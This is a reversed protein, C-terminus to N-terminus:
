PAPSQQWDDFPLGRNLVDTLYRSFKQNPTTEISQLLAKQRTIAEREAEPGRYPRRSVYQEIHTANHIILGAYWEKQNDRMERWAPAFANAETVYLTRTQFDVHPDSPVQIVRFVYDRVTDPLLNFASETQDVFWESGQIEISDPRIPTAPTPTPPIPTPTAPQPTPVPQSSPVFAAFLDTAPMAEPRNLGGPMSDNYQRYLDGGRAEQDLDQPLNWGTILSKLFSGVELAETRGSHGDYRMIGRQFRLYVIAPDAPDPAPRSIPLGWVELNIAPLLDPVTDGEPFADDLGVTSSFTAFFNTNLGNWLDPANARVFNIARSAFEPEATSPAAQILEPDPAPFTAGNFRTYPFLDRDAITLLRVSGDPSLQLAGRQFLQVRSGQLTFERSIPLGLVRAGGRHDFYGALTQNAISFGSEPFEREASVDRLFISLITAMALAVLVKRLMNHNGKPWNSM